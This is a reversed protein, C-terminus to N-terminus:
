FFPCRPIGSTAQRQWFLFTISIEHIGHQIDTMGSFRHDYSYGIRLRGSEIGALFVMTAQGDLSHRLWLGAMVPEIGGYLGLNVRRFPGQSQFIVNPSIFYAPGHSTGRHGTGPEMYMGLHATYKRQLYQSESLLSINPQSLHHVAVGGYIRDSFALIGSAFDPVQRWNDAGPPPAQSADYFVLRSWSLDRRFLGAQAAFHLHWDPSVQLHYAYVAGIHNDWLMNGMYDSTVTLAIGGYLSPLYGDVATHFTSINTADPLPHSRFNLTARFSDLSGAFAPNLYVPSSFFQSLIPDQAQLPIAPLLLIGWIWVYIHRLLKM